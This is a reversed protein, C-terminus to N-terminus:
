PCTMKQWNGPKSVCDWKWKVETTPNRNHFLIRVLLVARPVIRGAEGM